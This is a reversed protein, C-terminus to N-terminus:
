PAAFHIFRVEHKLNSFGIEKYFKHLDHKRSIYIQYGSIRSVFFGLRQLGARVDSLLRLNRNKFSLQVWKGTRYVSGDTDILGRIAAQLYCDNEMIWAPLTVQNAIKNGPLIGQKAFFDVLLKGCLLIFMERQSRHYYVKPEINFLRRCLPVVYGVLYDRELADGGIRVCYTGYKKKPEFVAQINGDGLIIGILEALEESRPPVSISKLKM